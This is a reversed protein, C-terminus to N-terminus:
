EDRMGGSKFVDMLSVKPKNAKTVVYVPMPPKPDPLKALTEDGARANKQMIFYVMKFAERYYQEVDASPSRRLIWQLGKAVLILKRNSDPSAQWREILTDGVGIIDKKSLYCKDPDFEPM